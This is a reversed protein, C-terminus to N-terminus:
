AGRGSSGPSGSIWSRPWKGRRRDHYEPTQSRSPGCGHCPGRGVGRLDAEAIDITKAVTLQGIRKILSRLDEGTIYEMTIYHVGAEEGIDFMRCVHRHSIKRATKLEQGFRDIVTKDTAIEPRIIKLAVMENITKDFVRYVTGMGGSGIEEIVEYRGFLYTGREIERIASRINETPTDSLDLGTGCQACFRTGATNRFNCKACKMSSNDGEALLGITYSDRNGTLASGRLAGRPRHRALVAQSVSPPPTFDQGEPFGAIVAM